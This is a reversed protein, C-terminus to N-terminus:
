KDEKENAYLDALSVLAQHFTPSANGAIPHLQLDLEAMVM